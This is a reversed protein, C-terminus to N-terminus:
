IYRDQWPVRGEPSSLYDKLINRQHTASRQSNNGRMAPLNEYVVPDARWAGPVIDNTEPDIHDGELLNPNAGRLINHLVCSAMVVAEVRDPKLCISTHFIRFRSAMIGFANEVTLRARSLRYNFVREEKTLARLPYPKMLHNRLPFADDGVLFYEVPEGQTANPLIEPPPLNARNALFMENLKTQAFVGGDSESGVAGVDIYLFKYRSDVVALLVMSFFKKYNYFHSGALSPNRIRVHKGDISGIAHPLNWREQFGQAVKKWEQPTKPLNLEDRYAAVIARCTEPVLLSITNHAVRFAYGLTKYSNGTALFRLTIAVKLGPELPARFYTLQKRIYPTVREVIEDFLTKHVRTYNRFLEPCELALEQMLNDYHGKELRRELYPRMWVSRPQRQNQPVKLIEQVLALEEYANLLDIIALILDRDFRIDPTILAVVENIEEM